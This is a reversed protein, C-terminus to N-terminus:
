KNVHYKNRNIFDLTTNYIIKYPNADPIMVGYAGTHYYYMMTSLYHSLAEWYQGLRMDDKFTGIQGYIDANM